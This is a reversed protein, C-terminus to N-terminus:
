GSHRRRGADRRTAQSCPRSLPGLLRMKVETVRDHTELAAKDTRRGAGVDRLLLQLAESRISSPAVLQIGPDVHLGNDILHLLTPADIVYRWAARLLVEIRDDSWVSENEFRYRALVLKKPPAELWAM